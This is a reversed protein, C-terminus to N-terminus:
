AHETHSMKVISHQTRVGMVSTGEEENGHDSWHFRCNPLLEKNNKYYHPFVCQLQM